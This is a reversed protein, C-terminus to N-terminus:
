GGGKPREIQWLIGDGAKLGRVVDPVFLGKGLLGIDLTWAGRDLEERYLDSVVYEVLLEFSISGEQRLINVALQEVPSTPSRRLPELLRVACDYLGLTDTM